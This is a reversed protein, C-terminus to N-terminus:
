SFIARGIRVMNSGEELAIAYDDSMGMSLFDMQINKAKFNKKIQDKLEHAKKFCDRIVDENESLPAMAMLGRICLHSFSSLEEIFSFAEAEAIGFKQEEGSTNVQVLIDIKRGLSVCQREIEQGLRVSDVSHIMDFVQLAQKVKNTQLHGIMHKTVEVSSPVRLDQYKTLAQQVRSEGIHCLGSDLAKEVDEKPSYKTVGILVVENPDRGLRKCILSINDKMQLINDRIM